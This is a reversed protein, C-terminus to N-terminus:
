DDREEEGKRSRRDSGKPDSRPGETKIPYILGVSKPLRVSIEFNRFEDSLAM